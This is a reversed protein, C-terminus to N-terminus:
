LGAFITAVKNYAAPVDDWWVSGLSVSVWTMPEPVRSVEDIRVEAGTHPDVMNYGGDYGGCDTYGESLLENRLDHHERYRFGRAWVEKYCPRFPDDNDGCVVSADFDFTINNLQMIERDGPIYTMIFPQRRGIINNDGQFGVHEVAFPFDM